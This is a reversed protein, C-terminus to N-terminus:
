CFQYKYKNLKTSVGRLNIIASSEIRLSPDEDTSIISILIILVSSSGLKRISLEAIIFRRPTEVFSLLYITNVMCVYLFSLVPVKQNPSVVDLVVMQKSKGRRKREGNKISDEKYTDFVIHIEECNCATNTIIGTLALALDHFTKVPPELKKLPVKRVLAMFRNYIYANTWPTTEREKPDIQPCLKLLESGLQSKTSKKLFGDKDVLFFASSTIEHLLLDEVTFGRHRAYEVYMLAKITEENIDLKSISRSTKKSTKLKVRSITSHISTTKSRLRDQMFKAYADTGEQICRLLMDVNVETVIKGTVVNKLTDQDLMSGCVKRLYKDIEEVMDSITTATSQNFDHHLSLEGEVDEMKLLQVYQDKKHKIIDWLAVADKKRTVGIIGGSYLKQRVTTANNWLKILHFEM